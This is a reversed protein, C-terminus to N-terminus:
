NETSPTEASSATSASPAHTRAAKPKHGSSGDSHQPGQAAVTGHLLYEKVLPLDRGFPAYTQELSRSFDRPEKHMFYVMFGGCLLTVVGIVRLWGNLWWNKYVRHRTAAGFSQFQLVGASNTNDFERKAVRLEAIYGSILCYLGLATLGLGTPWPGWFHAAIVALWATPVLWFVILVLLLPSNM